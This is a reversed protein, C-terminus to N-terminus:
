LSVVQQSQSNRPFGGKGPLQRQVAPPLYGMAGGVDSQQANLREGHQRRLTGDAQSMAGMEIAKQWPEPLLHLIAGSQAGAAFLDKALTYDTVDGYVQRDRMLSDQTAMIAAALECYERGDLSLSAAQREAEVLEKRRQHVRELKSDLLPDADGPHSGFVPAELHAQAAMLQSIAGALEEALDIEEPDLRSEVLERANRLHRIVGLRNNCFANWQKRGVDILMSMAKQQAKSSIACDAVWDLENSFNLHMRSEIIRSYHTGSSENSVSQLEGEPMDPGGVLETPTLGGLLQQLDAGTPENSPMTM